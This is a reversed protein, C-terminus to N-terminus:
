VGLGAKVGIMRVVNSVVGNAVTVVMDTLSDL